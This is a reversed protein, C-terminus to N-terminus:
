DASAETGPREVDAQAPAETSDLLSAVDPDLRSVKERGDKEQVVLGEDVLRSLHYSVTSYSKEVRDVVDGVTARGQEHLAAIVAASSEEQLAAALEANEAGLPYIRRNGRQKRTVIVRERELVRVHHRITSLPTDLEASLQTLTQGPTESVLDHIRSRTEHELPDSGDHRGYRLLVFARGLWGSLLSSVGSFAGFWPRAAVVFLTTGLPPAFALADGPDLGLLSDLISSEGTPEDPAAPATSANGDAPTPTATPTAPRETEDGGVPPATPAGPEIGDGDLLSRHTDVADLPVAVTSLGGADVTRVELVLASETLALRPLEPRVLGDTGAGLPAEEGALDTTEM